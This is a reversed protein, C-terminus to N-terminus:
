EVRRTTTMASDYDYGRGLLEEGCKCRGFVPGDHPHETHLLWENDWQDCYRQVRGDHVLRLVHTRWGRKVIITPEEQASM